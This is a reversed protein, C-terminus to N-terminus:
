KSSTLARESDVLFLVNTATLNLVYTAFEQSVKTPTVGQGHASTKNRATPVGSELTVRVGTLHSEMFVPFLRNEVCIRILAKATDHQEYHWGRKNCISKMTSEFTKLCENLSEKYRGHRFHDHAALFEQNAGALYKQKLLEIAPRTATQYTFESNLKLIQGEQFRFGLWHERFRSNIEDVGQDLSMLNAQRPLNHNELIKMALTLVVQIVDLCHEVSATRFFRFLEGGAILPACIANPDDSRLLSHVGYEHCLIREAENFIQFPLDAGNFLTGRGFM